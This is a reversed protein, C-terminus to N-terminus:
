TYNGLKRIRICHKIRKLIKGGALFQLTPVTFLPKGFVGNEGRRGGGKQKRMHGRRRGQIKRRRHVIVM